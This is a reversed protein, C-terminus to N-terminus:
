RPLRTAGRFIRQLLCQDFQRPLIWNGVIRDGPDIRNDATAGHIQSARFIPAPLVMTLGTLLTLRPEQRGVVTQVFRDVEFRQEVLQRLQFAFNHDGSNPPLEREALDRFQDSLGCARDVSSILLRKDFEPLRHVLLEIM